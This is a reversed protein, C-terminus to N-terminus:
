DPFFQNLIPNIIFEEKNKYYNNYSLLNYPENYVANCLNYTAVRHCLAIFYKVNYEWKMLNIDKLSWKVNGKIYGLKSNIRDLSINNQSFSVSLGTLYCSNNQQIFLEELYNKNLNFDLNGRQSTSIIRQYYTDPMKLPRYAYPSHPFTVATCIKIFQQKTLSRKIKNIDKHVWCINNIDYSLQSNIRDVSGTNYLKTKCDPLVLLINSLDCRKDQEQFKEYINKISINVPIQRNKANNKLRCYYSNLIYSPEYLQKYRETYTSGQQCGCSTIRKSTLNNTTVITHQGCDCKCEWQLRNQTDHESLLNIVTLFGFKQNLLNKQYDRIKRIKINNRKLITQIKISGLHYKKELQRRTLKNKTYNNCIEIQLTKNPLIM